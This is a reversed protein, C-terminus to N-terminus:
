ASSPMRSQPQHSSNLRTSKRDEEATVTLALRRTGWYYPEESYGLDEAAIQVTLVTSEGPALEEHTSSSALAAGTSSPTTDSQWATLVDRDTVRATRTRLELALTSLPESSTNTVDVQAELTGDPALSTPTLSVLDMSVPSDEPAQPPAAPSGAGLSGSATHAPSATAPPASVLVTSAIVLATLLAALVPRVSPPSSPMTVSYAAAVTSAKLHM